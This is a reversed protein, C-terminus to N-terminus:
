KTILPINIKFKKEIIIVNIEIVSQGINIQLNHQGFTSKNNTSLDLLIEGWPKNLINPYISVELDNNDISSYVAQSSTPTIGIIKIRSKEGPELLVSNPYSYKPENSGCYQLPPTASNLSPLTSLYISPSISEKFSSVVSPDVGNGTIRFDADNTNEFAYDNFWVFGRLFPYNPMHNIADIIWNVKKDTQSHTGIESIIQPKPYRCALDHLIGPPIIANEGTVTGYINEFSMYPQDRSIYWNYGSLGIWDVYEDGPYYNYYANWSVNPYSAYNISWVWEVNRVGIKQQEEEFVDHVHQWMRIYDNPSLNFHGPWWPSDSINMEHAFRILFRSTHKSLDQAFLKIYQDCGGNIITLLSIANGNSPRCTIDLDSDLQSATIIPQWTLMIVPRIDAPIEEIQKILFDDLVQGNVRPQGSWDLFYMIISIPKGIQQNFNLISDRYNINPRLHVGISIGLNDNIDSVGPFTSSNQFLLRPQMSYYLLPILLGMNYLFKFNM